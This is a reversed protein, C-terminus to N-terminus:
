PFPRMMEADAGKLPLCVPLGTEHSLHVAMVAELAAIGEELGCPIPRDTLMQLSARQCYDSLRAPQSFPFERSGLTNNTLRWTKARDDIEIRGSTGKLVVCGDFQAADEATELTGLIGNETRFRCWGAPDEFEAGRRNPAIVPYLMGRVECIRAGSLMAALDFYHSGIMAMGGPGPLCHVQRLEGIYGQEVVRRIGTFDASWRRSHNVAVRVGADRCHAAFRRAEAVCSGVPKEILIRKVGASVLTGAVQLHSTTTTAVIAYDPVAKSLAEEVSEAVLCDDQGSEAALQAALEKRTDVVAALRTNEIASLGRHHDRGQAGAGILIVRMPRRPSSPLPAPSLQLELKKGLLAAKAYSKVAGVISM